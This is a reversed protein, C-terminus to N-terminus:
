FPIADDDPPVVASPESEDPPVVASPDSDDEPPATGLSILKQFAFSRNANSREGEGRVRKAGTWKEVSDRFNVKTTPHLIGEDDCWEQYAKFVVSEQIRLPVDDKFSSDDQRVYNETLFRLVQDNYLGYNERAEVVNKGETFKGLTLVRAVAM